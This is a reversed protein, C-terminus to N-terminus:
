GRFAFSAFLWRDGRRHATDPWELRVTLDIRRSLGLWVGVGFPVDWTDVGAAEDREFRFEEVRLGSDVVIAAADFLQLSLGAPIRLVATGAFSVDPTMQLTMSRGLGLQAPLGVRFGFAVDADGDGPADDYAFGAVRISAAPVLSYDLRASVDVIEMADAPAVAVDTDAGVMFRGGFGYAVDARTRFRDQPARAIADSLGGFRVEFLGPPLLLPRDVLRRPYADVAARDARAGAPAALGAAVIAM